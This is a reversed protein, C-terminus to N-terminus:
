GASRGSSRTAPPRKWSYGVAGARLMELVTLRDEFASLAIVRTDPSLRAIERTAHAGGGEPM